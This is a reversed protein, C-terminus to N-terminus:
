YNDEEKQREYWSLKKAEEENYGFTENTTEMNFMKTQNLFYLSRQIHKNQTESFVLEKKKRGSPTHEHDIIQEMICCGAENILANKDAREAELTQVYLKSINTYDIDKSYLLDYILADRWEPSLEKILKKAEKLKEVQKFM